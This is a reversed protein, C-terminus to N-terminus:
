LALAERFTCLGENHLQVAAVIDVIRAEAGVLLDEEDQIGCALM